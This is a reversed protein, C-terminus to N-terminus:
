YELGADKRLNPMWIRSDGEFHHEPTGYLFSGLYAIRLGKTVPAVEHTGIFNTPYIVASGAKPKHTHKAHRNTIEGGLFNYDNLDEVNDVSDNLYINVSVKSHKPYESAPAKGFEHPIQDDCHPGINQGKEYTAIHGMGRWWCVTSADPYYKCYEVLIRYMLDELDAIFQEQEPTVDRNPSWKLLPDIFRNPALMVGDPDFKFGTRNIAYRKGDEEVYTFTEEEVERLYNIYNFLFEQDVDICDKVVCLGSGIDTMNIRTDMM